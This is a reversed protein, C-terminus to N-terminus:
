KQKKYYRKSREKVDENFSDKREQPIRNWYSNPIYACEGAGEICVDITRPPEVAHCLYGDKDKWHCWNCLSKEVQTKSPNEIM